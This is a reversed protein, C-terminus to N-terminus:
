KLLKISLIPPPRSLTCFLVGKDIPYHCTFSDSFSVYGKSDALVLATLSTECCGTSLLIVSSGAGVELSWLGPATWALSGETCSESSHFTRHFFWVALRCSLCKSHSSPFALPMCFSFWFSCCTHSCVRLCSVSIALLPKYAFMCALLFRMLAPEPSFILVGPDFPAGVFALKTRDAFVALGYLFFFFHNSGFVTLTIDVWVFCGWSKHCIM